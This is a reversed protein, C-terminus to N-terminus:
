KLDVKRNKAVAKKLLFEIQSNISRLDDDAWKRLEDHLQPDIRLLLRKKEMRTRRSKEDGDTSKKGESDSTLLIL